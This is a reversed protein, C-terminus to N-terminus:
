EEVEIEIFQWAEPPLGERSRFNVVYEKCKDKTKCLKTTEIGNVGIWRKVKKPKIRLNVLEDMFIHGPSWNVEDCDINTWYPYSAKTYEIQSVGGNLWHLCEKTFQPLCLFYEIDSEFKYSESTDDFFWDDGDKFFVALDMNAAKAVIMDYHRHKSM